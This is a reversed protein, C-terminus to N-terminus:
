FAEIKKYVERKIIDGMRATKVSDNVRLTMLKMELEDGEGDYPPQIYKVLRWLIFGHRMYFDVRRRAMESMEPLEVELVIPVHGCDELFHSLMASGIGTGRSEPKVAFHEIYKFEEFDWYSLFGVFGSEDSASLIEFPVDKRSLLKEVNAFKRREVAPFSSEYLEEICKLVGSGPLVNSYEIM